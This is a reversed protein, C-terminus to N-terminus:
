PCNVRFQANGQRAVRERYRPLPPEQVGPAEAVCVHLHARCDECSEELPNDM